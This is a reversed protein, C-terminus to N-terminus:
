LQLEPKIGPRPIEVHCPYPWFLFFSFYVETFVSFPMLLLLQRKGYPQATFPMGMSM